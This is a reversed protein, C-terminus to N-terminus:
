FRCGVIFSLSEISNFFVYDNNYYLHGDFRGQLSAFLGKHNYVFSFNSRLNTAFMNRRGESSDAFSYKYGVSPLITFNALWRKPYLVWNHAYGGMLAYDTYRFRYNSKMAPLHVKMAPPLHTFDMNITQNNYMFGAIWSGASKLQYKSFCYAAAQSYRNFNFIYYVDASLTRMSADDFNYTFHRGKNYEGFHTIKLGGVTKAYDLSAAFRSCTFSLQFTRRVNKGGGFYNDVKANYGLTLAMFSVYAGVDSYIDSRMHITSKTDFFLMSSEMWNYTRLTAKWNKGVGVVYTSDYSNFVKDGWNYVNLCFRPFKPYNISPDNIRFGNNVVQLYWPLKSKMVTSDKAEAVECSDPNSDLVVIKEVEARVSFHLFVVIVLIILKRISAM